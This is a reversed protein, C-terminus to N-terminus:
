IEGMMLAPEIPLSSNPRLPHDVVASSEDALTAAVLENAATSPGNESWVPRNQGDEEDDGRWRTIRLGDRDTESVTLKAFRQIDFRTAPFSTGYRWVEIQGVISQALLARASDFEPYKTSEILTIGNHIVRYRQGHAGLYTAEIWIRQAVEPM